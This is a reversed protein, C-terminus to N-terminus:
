IPSLLRQSWGQSLGCRRAMNLSCNGLYQHNFL